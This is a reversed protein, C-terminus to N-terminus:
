TDGLKLFTVGSVQMGSNGEVIFSSGSMSISVKRNTTDSIDLMVSCNAGGYYNGSDNNISGYGAVINNYSSNNSTYKIACMILSVDGNIRGNCRADVLWIGTSPFTFIGSSESMGTGVKDFNNDNREWNSTIPDAGGTADSTIRWQDAESVGVTDTVSAFSLNKSGDTKLYQGASGDAVPLVFPLAANGTTTAPGKLSVTGGGSDATLKIESM